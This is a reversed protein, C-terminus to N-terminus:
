FSAALRTVLSDLEGGFEVAWTQRTGTYTKTISRIRYTGSIGATADTLALLGGAHVNAPATAMDELRFTGHEEANQTGLYDEGAAQAGSGDGSIYSAATTAMRGPYVAGASVPIDSAGGTVYVETVGDVQTEFALDTAVLASGYTDTVTLTSYDSPQGGVETWMRLQNFWDVTVYFFPQHVRGSAEQWAAGALIALIASRLTSYIAAANGLGTTVAAAGGDRCRGIGQTASGTDSSGTVTNVRPPAASVVAQVEKDINIDAAGVATYARVTQTDDLVAEIGKCSVTIDRGVGHPSVAYREVTGVFHPVSNALDWFEVRGPGLAWTGMPDNVTFSMSSVDGPGAERVSISKIPTGPLNGPNGPERVLDLGNFFLGWPHAGTRGGGLIAGLM